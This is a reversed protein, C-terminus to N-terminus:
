GVAVEVHTVYVEDRLRMDIEDSPFDFSVLVWRDQRPLPSPM